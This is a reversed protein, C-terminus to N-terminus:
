LTIYLTNDTDSYTIVADKYRTWTYDAPNTSPDPGIFTGIYKTDAGPTSTMNAGNEDTAYRIYSSNGDSGDKGDKGNLGNSGNKGAAGTKGTAGTAGTKGTNGSKGDKGDNGDLGDKGDKGDKGNKGQNKIVEDMKEDYEDLIKQIQIMVSDAIQDKSNMFDYMTLGNSELIDNIQQDRLAELDLGNGSVTDETGSIDEEGDKLEIKMVSQKMGSLKAKNDLLYGSGYSCEEEMETGLVQNTQSLFYAAAIILGMALITGGLLSIAKAKKSKFLKRM